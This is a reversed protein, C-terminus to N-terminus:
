EDGDEDSTESVKGSAEILRLPRHLLRFKKKGKLRNETLLRQLTRSAHVEELILKTFDNWEDDTAQQTMWVMMFDFYAGHRILRGPLPGGLDGVLIGYRLYPHVHKHTSAKASYTLADHTTVGGIKCEIVVRPIWNGDSHSDYVLLDTEYGAQKTKPENNADYSMIECAYTLRDGCCAKAQWEGDRCENLAGELLPTISAVWERESAMDKGKTRM